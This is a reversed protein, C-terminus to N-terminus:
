STKKGRKESYALGFKLYNKAFIETTEFFKVPNSQVSRFRNKFNSRFITNEWLRGHIIKYTHYRVYLIHTTFRLHAINTPFFHDVRLFRSSLIDNIKGHVKSHM